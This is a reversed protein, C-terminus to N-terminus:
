MNCTDLLTRGGGSQLVPRLAAWCDVLLDTTLHTDDDTVRQRPADQRKVRVAEMVDGEGEDVAVQYGGLTVSWDHALIAAM